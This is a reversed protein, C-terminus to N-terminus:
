RPRNLFCGVSYPGLHPASSVNKRLVDLPLEPGSGGLRKRAAAIGHLLARRPHLTQQEDSKVSLWLSPCHGSFAPANM